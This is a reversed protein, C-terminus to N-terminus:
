EVYFSICVKLKSFHSFFTVFLFTTKSIANIAPFNKRFKCLKVFSIQNSIFHQTKAENPIKTQNIFSQWTSAIKQLKKRPLNPISIENDTQQVKQGIKGETKRKYNEPKRLFTLFINPPSPSNFKKLFRIHNFKLYRLFSGLTM